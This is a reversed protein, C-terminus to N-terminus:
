FGPIAQKSNNQKIANVIDIAFALADRAAQDPRGLSEGSEIGSLFFKLEEKLPEAKEVAVNEQTIKDELKRFIKGSQAEYDLSVYADQQFIRIKRQKEPTLRSATLDAVAGNRFRIRVNAIDEFPTLVNIGVADFSEVESKVLGLVIDLDHIMLDLVVGCDNIRGTFPGLRHIEFFRINKAIEGVRKLAPNHRELHGVQLACRNKKSLEILRDAEDLELTIPKEILTHIGAALFEKAVEYHRSTPTAISVADVKGILERFDSIFSVGLEDAKQKKSPDADCIAVLTSQPLERYIRAHEKGLHGVGIVATKLPM